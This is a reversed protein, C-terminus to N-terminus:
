SAVPVREADRAAREAVKAAVRGIREIRSLLAERAQEAEPSLDELSEVAWHRLVVPVLIKEHHIQMDYIGAKAIAKAHEGFNPIGTGPMEFDRVQKEIAIVLSSPDLKIAAAVIDRYFLYHFNEDAAVKRMIKQGRGDAALMEGTNFHAIRTALEQLAVYAMGEAANPPQPVQGTSVQVMRDRELSVPDVARTVTLYDRIVISHRGEEATWRKSWAGWVDDRGFMREIDRFYYPLNDETLLNVVLASRVAPPIREDDAVWEEGPEFDRGESWPVYEHPFWEKSSSLHREMLREAEPVLENLLALDDLHVPM